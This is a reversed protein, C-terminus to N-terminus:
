ELICHRQFSFLFMRYEINMGFKIKETCVRWTKTVECKTVTVIQDGSLLGRPTIKVMWFFLQCNKTTGKLIKLTVSSVEVFIFNGKGYDFIHWVVGVRMQSRNSLTFHFVGMNDPVRHDPWGGPIYLLGQLYHSTQWWSTIAPSRFWWFLILSNSKWGLTCLLHLCRSAIIEVIGLLITNKWLWGFWHADGSDRKDRVNWLQPPVRFFFCRHSFRSTLFKCTENKNKSGTNRSTKLLDWCYPHCFSPCPDKRKPYVPHLFPVRWREFFQWSCKQYEISAGFM